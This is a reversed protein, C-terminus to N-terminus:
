YFINFAKLIIKDKKSINEFEKKDNLESLHSYLTQHLNLQMDNKMNLNDKFKNKLKDFEYKIMFENIDDKTINEMM